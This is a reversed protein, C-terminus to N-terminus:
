NILKTAELLWGVEPSSLTRHYLFRLAMARKLGMNWTMTWVNPTSCPRHAVEPFLCDARSPSKIPFTGIEVLSTRSRREKFKTTGRCSAPCLCTSYAEKRELDPAHNKSSSFIDSAICYLLCFCCHSTVVHITKFNYQLISMLLLQKRTFICHAFNLSASKGWRTRQVDTSQSQKGRHRRTHLGKM